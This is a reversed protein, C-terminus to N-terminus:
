DLRSRIMLDIDNKALHEAYESMGLKRALRSDAADAVGCGDAAPM